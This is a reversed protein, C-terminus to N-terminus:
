ECIASLMIAKISRDVSMCDPLTRDLGLDPHLDRPIKM